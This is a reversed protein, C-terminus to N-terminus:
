EERGGKVGESTRTTELHREFVIQEAMEDFTLEIMENAPSKPDCYTWVRRTLEALMSNVAVPNKALEHEVYPMEVVVRGKAVGSAFAQRVDAVLVWEDSSGCLNTVPSQVCRLDAATDELELWDNDLCDPAFVSSTVRHGEFEVDRPAGDPTVDFLDVGFVRALTQRPNVVGVVGVIGSLDATVAHRIAVRFSLSAAVIVTGASRETTRVLELTARLGEEVGSLTFNAIIGDSLGIHNPHDLRYVTLGNQTLQRAIVAYHRMRRGFGPLLIVTGRSEAGDEPASRWIAVANGGATRHRIEEVQAVPTM